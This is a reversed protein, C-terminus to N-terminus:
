VEKFSYREDQYILFEADNHKLCLDLVERLDHPANKFTKLTVGRITQDEIAYKEETDVVRQIVEAM